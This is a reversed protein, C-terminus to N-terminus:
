KWVLGYFDGDSDEKCLATLAQPDKMEMSSLHKSIGDLGGFELGLCFEPIKLFGFKKELSGWYIYINGKM